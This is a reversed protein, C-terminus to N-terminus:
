FLAVKGLDQSNAAVEVTEEEKKDSDSSDTDPLETDTDSL